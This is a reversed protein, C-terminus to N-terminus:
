CVDHPEVLHNFKKSVFIDYYLKDDVELPEIIGKETHAAADLEGAAQLFPMSNLHDYGLGTMEMFKRIRFERAARNVVIGDPTSVLQEDVINAAMESDSTMSRRNWNASGVSLYVDDVVFAKTHIYLNRGKKTKYLQLKNPFRMMIPEIMEYLFKEYGTLKNVHLTAQVVVILRNIRPLAELIAELLEPVLVFYQDEVYIYNKAERIAKIRAHLLSNDGRPAFEFYRRYKCSYTTTIQVAATGRGQVDKTSYNVPPLDSYPPNEFDLLDDVVGLTPKERSNWRTLFTNAVDLAAPGHLRVQADLWGDFLDRIDTRRRLAAQNHEITDWRESSIDIGGVYAVLDNQKDLVVAKQHHSATIGKPLRDDFVFRAPGGQAPKPLSNVYDRMKINKSREMLNPWVLARFDVGRNVASSIMTKTDTKSGSPDNIPDWPVNDITWASLLVRDGAKTEQMDKLLHDFYDKSDVHGMVDNGSTYLSMHTRQAGWRSATMEDESLFWKEPKTEPQEIPLESGDDRSMGDHDSLECRFRQVNFECMFCPQCLCKRAAMKFPNLLPRCNVGDRAEVWSSEILLALQLVALM